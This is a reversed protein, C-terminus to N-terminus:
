SAVSVIWNIGFRDVLYGTAGSQATLPGKIRGGEALANFIATLRDGDAGSLAIAMNDGVTPPYSPHGDSGAIVVGDAELRAQAVRDDPGAPRSAGRGDSAQLDLTGGFIQHYFEMAERARGQFNVYPGIQFASVAAEGNTKSQPQLRQAPTGALGAV